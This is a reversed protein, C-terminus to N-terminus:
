SIGFMKHFGFAMKLFTLGAWAMGAWTSLIWKLVLRGKVGLDELQEREDPQGWWVLICM